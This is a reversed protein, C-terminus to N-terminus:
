VSLHSTDNLLKLYVEGDYIEVINVATNDQMIRWSRDLPIGFMDSLMARITGGHSVVVVVQDSATTHKAIIQHLATMARDRLQLFSEGGPVPTSAPTKRWQQLLSPFKGEIDKWGMGEWNGFDIERLGESIEVSKGHKDAVLQATRKARSLGSSYVADVAFAQLRHALREAQSIGDADLEIDTKGMFRWTKNWQTQGHRVVILKLM